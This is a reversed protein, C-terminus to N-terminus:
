HAVALSAVSIQIEPFRNRLERACVELTAGTTIVDDILLFHGGNLDAGTANFIEQMSDWRSLLGKKTQSESYIRRKLLNMRIPLGTALAVGKAIEEAQNYGRVFQKKPHLPVPVLTTVSKFREMTLLRKGMEEGFHLGLENRHNYKLDHLIRQTATKQNFHLLSFTFELPVRGWFLQDLASPETYNEHLTYELDYSCVPCVGSKSDILEMSCGYCFQPYLVHLLEASLRKVKPQLRTFLENKMIFLFIVQGFVGVPLNPFIHNGLTIM